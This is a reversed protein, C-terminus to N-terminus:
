PNNPHLLGEVTHVTEDLAHGVPSEPGAVGNVVGETVGTVGTKELTGGLATEDVKSVTGNVTETLAGSASTTVGETGGGGTSGGGTSGGSGGSSTASETPQVAGSGGNSSGGGASTGGGHSGAGEGGSGGQHGAPPGGESPTGTVAPAGAEVQGAPNAGGDGAAEGGGTAGEGGAVTVALHNAEIAPAGSPEAPKANSIAATDDSGGLSGVPWSRFVQASVLLVFVAIAIAILTAGSMASVLYTHAQRIMAGEYGSNSFIVWQTPGMAM